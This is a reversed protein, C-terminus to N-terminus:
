RGAHCHRCTYDEEGLLTGMTPTVVERMFRVTEPFTREMGTWAPTGPEPVRFASPPPMHFELERMEEGHCSECGHDGWREPEESAFLSQMIPLVKGIMYYEKESHSMEEWPADPGTIGLAAVADADPHSGPGEADWGEEDDWDDDWDDDSTAESGSAVELSPADTADPGACGVLLFALALLSPPTM